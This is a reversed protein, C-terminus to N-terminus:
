LYKWVLLEVLSQLEVWVEKCLDMLDCTEGM